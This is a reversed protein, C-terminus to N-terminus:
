FISKIEDGYKILLEKKYKCVFILHAMLLYKSHNKSVYDM